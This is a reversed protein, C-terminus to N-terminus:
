NNIEPFVPCFRCGDISTELIKQRFQKVSNSYWVDKTFDDIELVNVPEIGDENESFSCNWYEGKVNLYSSFNSSECSESCMLFKQKDEETIDMEKITKEFKPATCSDFGMRIKKDFCEKLLKKFKKISLSHFLGKARGKPKVGLFVVANLKSLREDNQVDNIVEYVFDINEESILLHINCQDIGQDTFKKVTDYCINKNTEYASVAVAGILPTVQKLIDDTLDIGSLTFNPIIGIERCYKMMPIFDPNTQIGTIGFAVQCLIKPFKDIITKFDELTMNVPSENTNNKYCFSCNNPCGGTSIEIDLIEPAVPCFVPDEDQTKGWRAFFGTKKNFVYNYNDSKVVKSNENDFVEFKEGSIEYVYKKM